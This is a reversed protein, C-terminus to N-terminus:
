SRFDGPGILDRDLAMKFAAEGQEHWSVPNVFAFGCNHCVALAEHLGSTPGLIRRLAVRLKAVRRSMVGADGFTTAQHM